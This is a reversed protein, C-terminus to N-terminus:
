PIIETSQVPIVRAMVARYNMTAFSLFPYNKTIDTFDGYIGRGCFFGFMNWTGDGDHGSLPAVGGAYFGGRGRLEGGWFAYPPYVFVMPDHLPINNHIIYPIIYSCVIYPIIYPIISYHITYHFMYYHFSNTQIYLCDMYM